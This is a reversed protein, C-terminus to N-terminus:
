SSHRVQKLVNTVEDDSLTPTENSCGCGAIFFVATTCVVFVFWRVFEKM